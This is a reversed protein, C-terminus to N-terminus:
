RADSRETKVVVQRWNECSTDGRGRKIAADIRKIEECRREQETM